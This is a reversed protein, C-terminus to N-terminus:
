FVRLELLFWLYRRAGWLSNVFFMIVSYSAVIYLADCVKLETTGKAISLVYQVPTHSAFSDLVDAHHQM